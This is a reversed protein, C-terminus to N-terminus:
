KEIQFHERSFVSERKEKGSISVLTWDQSSKARERERERERERM